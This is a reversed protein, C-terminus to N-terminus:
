VNGIPVEMSGESHLCMAKVAWMVSEELARCALTREASEPVWEFISTAYAKATERLREIKEIVPDSPRVNTLSRQMYELDIM